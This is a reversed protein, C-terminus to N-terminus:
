SKGQQRAQHRAAVEAAKRLTPDDPHTNLWHTILTKGSSYFLLAHVSSAYLRKDAKLMEIMAPQEHGNIYLYDRGEVLHVGLQKFAHIAAGKPLGLERDIEQLSWNRSPETM